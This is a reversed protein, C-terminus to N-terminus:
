KLQRNEESICTANHHVPFNVSNAIFCRKAAEQHAEMAGKIMSSAKVTVVPYLTVETFRGGGGAEEAMKGEAKDTYGTVVVGCVACMHLFFLMHCASLAALLLEEPNYRTNDGRFSPDSSGPIPPKGDVAIIHSREYGKYEVTGNGTNGTWTVTTSYHHTHM